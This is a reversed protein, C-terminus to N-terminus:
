AGKRKQKKERVLRERIENRINQWDQKTMPTMPGKLGQLLLPEIQKRHKELYAKLWLTVNHEDGTISSHEVLGKHLDVVSLSSPKVDRLPQQPPSSLVDSSARNASLALALANLLRM